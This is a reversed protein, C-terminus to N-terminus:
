FGAGIEVGGDSQLMFLAYRLMCVRKLPWHSASLGMMLPWLAISLLKSLAM